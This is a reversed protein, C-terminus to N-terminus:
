NLWLLDFAAYCPPRRAFFLANFDPGDEGMVLIEGDLIADRVDLSQALSLALPQFRRMPKANKSTFRADGEAIELVGRFGDLKLEYTWERGIPVHASKTPRLPEIKPLTM